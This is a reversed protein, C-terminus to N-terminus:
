GLVGAQRFAIWASVFMLESLYNVAKKEWERDVKGEWHHFALVDAILTVDVFLEGIWYGEPKQIGLLYDQSRKIATELSIGHSFEFEENVPQGSLRNIDVPTRALKEEIEFGVALEKLQNVEQEISQRLQNIAKGAQPREAKDVSKLDEYMKNLAGKRGLWSVRLEEILSSRPTERVKTAESTFKEQLKQANDILSAM